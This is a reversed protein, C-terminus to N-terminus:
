EQKIFRVIETHDGSSISLIYLGPTLSSLDLSNGNFKGKIVQQGKTNLISYTNQMLPFKSNIHLTSKVPNPYIELDQWLAIDSSKSLVKRVVGSHDLSGKYGNFLIKDEDYPVELNFVNIFASDPNSADFKLQYSLATLDLQGDDNVDSLFAGNLFTFGEVQIPFNSVYTQDEIHYANIFGRGEPSAAKSSTIVEYDGDNDIDAVAVLGESGALDIVPFGDLSEGNVEFGEIVGEPLDGFYPRAFFIEYAEDGDIDAVAPTAFTWIEDDKPWGDLYQAASNLVYTGPRDNHRAGIIELKEDLDLDVLLPSQYSFKAGEEEFPFGELLEGTNNFVYLATTTSTIVEPSGDNDIDGVSPTFAPTGPISIPWNDNVTSATLDLAHLRGSSSSIRESAIIEKLGDNNVDELTVGNLFFHDDINFPWGEEINGLHDILYVNGTAPVGYTQVVIELDGDNDLDAIAPPFNSTGDLDLSWSITGDSNLAYLTENTCFIIEQKSDDDLDAISVNRFNKFNPHAKSKFPFGELQSFNSRTEPEYSANIKEEIQYKGNEDLNVILLQSQVVMPSFFFLLFYIRVM